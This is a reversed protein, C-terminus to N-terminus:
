YGSKMQSDLEFKFSRDKKQTFTVYARKSLISDVKEISRSNNNNNNVGSRNMTSKKVANREIRM